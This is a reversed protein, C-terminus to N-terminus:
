QILIEASGAAYLAARVNLDSGASRFEHQSCNDHKHNILLLLLGLFGSLSM